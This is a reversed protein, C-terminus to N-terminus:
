LYLLPWKDPLVLDSALPFQLWTATGRRRLALPPVEEDVSSLGLDPTSQARELLSLPVIASRSTSSAQIFDRPRSSYSPTRFSM